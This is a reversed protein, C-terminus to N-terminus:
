ADGDPQEREVHQHDKEGHGTNEDEVGVFLVKEFGLFSGHALLTPQECGRDFGGPSEFGGVGLANQNLEALAMQGTQPDDVAPAVVESLERRCDELIQATTPRTLM